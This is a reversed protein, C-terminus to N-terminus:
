LTKLDYNTPTLDQLWIVVQLMTLPLEEFTNYHIYVDVVMVFTTDLTYLSVM